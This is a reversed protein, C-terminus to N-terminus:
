DMYKDVLAKFQEVNPPNKEILDGNIFFTPTSGVGLDRGERRDAMVIRNMDASNMDSRFQAVNMGISQAYGIFTTEANGRSWQEQGAFMMEHMEEYKGQKRAAEVARSAVQAYAHMSLPFHKTVIDIEDGYAKKLEVEIAHFYKCAPCQYDSYKVLTVKAEVKSAPASQESAPTTAAPAAFPTKSEQAKECAAGFTVVAILIPLIFSKKM